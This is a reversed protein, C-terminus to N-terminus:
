PETVQVAFPDAAQLRRQALHMRRTLPDEDVEGTV